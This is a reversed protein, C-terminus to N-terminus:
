TRTENTGRYRYYEEASEIRMCFVKTLKNEIKRYIKERERVKLQWVFNGMALIDKSDEKNKPITFKFV